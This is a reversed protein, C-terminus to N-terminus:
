RPADFEPADLERLKEGLKRHFEVATFQANVMETKDPKPAPCQVDAGVVGRGKLVTRVDAELRERGQRAPFVGTLWVEGGRNSAAICFTWNQSAAEAPRPGLSAFVALALWKRM